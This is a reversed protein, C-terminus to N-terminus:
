MNDLLFDIDDEAELALVPTEITSEMIVYFDDAESQSVTSQATEESTILGFKEKVIVDHWFPAKKKELLMKKFEGIWENYRFPSQQKAESRYQLIAETVIDMPLVISQFVLDIIVNQMQQSITSFREGRGLLDVFDQAPTVTGVEVLPKM